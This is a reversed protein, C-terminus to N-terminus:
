SIGGLAPEASHHTLFEKEFVTTQKLSYLDHHCPLASHWVMVLRYLDPEILVTHLQGRHHVFKHGIMTRFGLAVRPLLFTLRGDPTLNILEVREGGRLYGPVRQDEPASYFYEDSFDTPVLPQRERQWREDYTGALKRRPMWSCAVAGLGAPRARGKAQSSLENPYEVNPLITGETANMGVGVPNQDAGGHEFGGYAREYLIPLKSFPEPKSPVLGSYGRTWLRNGKIILTKRIPGVSLSVPVETVGKGLPAYASANVLVDTGPKTRVMDTDCRLSSQGPKGLYQPVLAVPEQQDAVSCEGGASIDFTARVAILWIEAGDRGRVFARQVEFRTHNEIAWM